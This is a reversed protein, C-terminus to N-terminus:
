EEEHILNRAKKKKLDFAKECLFVEITTKDEILLPIETNRLEENVFPLKHVWYCSEELHRSLINFAIGFYMDLYKNKLVVIAIGPM